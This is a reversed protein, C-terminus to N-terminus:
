VTGITGFTLSRFSAPVRVRDKADSRPFGREYNWVSMALLDSIYLLELILGNARLGTSPSRDHKAWARDYKVRM